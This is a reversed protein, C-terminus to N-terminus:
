LYSLRIYFLKRRNPCLKFFESNKKQEEKMENQKDEKYQEDNEVTPEEIQDPDPDQEDQLTKCSFL